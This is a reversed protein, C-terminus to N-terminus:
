TKGPPPAPPVPAGLDRDIDKAVDVFRRVFREMFSLTQEFQQETPLGANPPSPSTEVAALRKEVADLRGIIRDLEDQFATREEAALKCVLQGSRETCISMEGTRTDMRVYGDATKELTYRTVSDQASALMVGALIGLGALIAIRMIKGGHVTSRLDWSKAGSIRHVATRSGEPQAAM